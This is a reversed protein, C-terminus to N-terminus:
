SPKRRSVHLYGPKVTQQFVGNEVLQTRFVSTGANEFVTLTQFHLLAFVASKQKAHQFLEPLSKKLLSNLWIEKAGERSQASVEYFM